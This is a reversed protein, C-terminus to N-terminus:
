DISRFLLPRATPFSFLLSIVRFSCYAVRETYQAHEAFVALPGNASERRPVSHQLQGRSGLYWAGWAPASLVSLVCDGEGRGGGQEIFDWVRARLLFPVGSNQGKSRMASDHRYM